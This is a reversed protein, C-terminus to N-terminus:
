FRSLSVSLCLCLTHTPTHTVWQRLVEHSECVGQMTAVLFIGGVEFREVNEIVLSFFDVFSKLAKWKWFSFDKRWFSFANSHSGNVCVFGMLSVECCAIAVVLLRVEFGSLRWRDDDDWSARLRAHTINWFVRVKALLLFLVFACFCASTERLAPMKFIKM